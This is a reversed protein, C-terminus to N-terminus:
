AADRVRIRGDAHVIVEHGHYFFRVTTRSRGAGIDSRGDVSDGSAGDVTASDTATEDTEVTRSDATTGDTATTFLADLADFDVDVERGLPPLDLPDTGTVEGIATAISVSLPKGEDVDHYSCHEHPASGDAADGSGDTTDSADTM